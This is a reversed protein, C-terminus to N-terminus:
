TGRKLTAPDPGSGELDPVLGSPLKGFDPAGIDVALEQAKMKCVGVSLVGFKHFCGCGSGFVGADPVQGVM